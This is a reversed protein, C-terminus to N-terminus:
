REGDAERETAQRDLDRQLDDVLARVRDAVRSIRGLNAPNDVFDAIGGLARLAQALEARRQQAQRVLLPEAHSMWWQDIAFAEGTETPLYDVSAQWGCGCAAVYADFERTALTWTSTLTGDPLRRAAYGEHGGLGEIVVGM